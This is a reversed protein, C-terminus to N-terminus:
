NTIKNLNLVKKSQFSTTYTPGTVISLYFSSITRSFAFARTRLALLVANNLRRGYTLITMRISALAAGAYISPKAAAISGPIERLTKLVSFFVLNLEWKWYKM